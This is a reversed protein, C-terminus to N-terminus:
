ARGGNKQFVVVRGQAFEDWRVAARVGFVAELNAACLAEPTPGQAAVRGQDMLILHDCFAAALNLDHLVAVVTRGEHRVLRELEGLAALAHRVDLNNTPEDLLMVPADQALARALIVRQKEGGSLETVPQHALAALDLRAMAADVLQEDRAAPASFRPIFAHRGMLVTERVTYPFGLGPEQPTLSLARALEAARWSTLPRGRFSLSGASPRLLGTMVDLLTTKGCGNPGVLGYFRGPTIELDLGRLAAQPGYAFFLGRIAFVPEAVGWGWNSAASSM